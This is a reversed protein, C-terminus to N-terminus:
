RDGLRQRARAGVSRLQGGAPRRPDAGSARVGAAWMLTRAPITQGDTLEIEDPSVRAVAKGLLVEVGRERLMQLAHQQSAPSFPGLLAPAMEILLIRARTVDLQPFDKALVNHYLEAVSGALEVGTPGGGVIVVNLAGEAILSPRVAAQEFQDLLHSRLRIADELTKL